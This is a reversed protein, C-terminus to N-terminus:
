RNQNVRWLPRAADQLQRYRDYGDEYVRAVVPDPEVVAEAHTWVRRDHAVGMADLAALVAGRAGVQPSRAVHLPRGLVSAFIELWSRSRAGGGCVVLRGSLGAADFCDRAAYALGECTARVLDARTTTLQIGGYQGRADPDVFPAREGSPALYPLVEVGGAGPRSSRLVPDLESHAIGLLELVWDLSASGAMAPMARLRLGVQPTALNMGAPEGSTDISGVVVQCALTTGVTMLGDGLEVVGAGIACAPFDFPGAVVPTHEPLGLEDAGIRSVGATPLPMAVPALLDARSSLGTAALAEASYGDAGANGFPLSADSRDTTRVGTLRQFVVDKCYAATVSRDLSEPEHADLWSMVAAISGPFLANGNLRYVSEVVGEARWRDLLGSARGDMWSIAPRVPRADADVLWCGDGQGTVAVVSPVDGGAERRVTAVVQAVSAVVEDTDQEVHGPAPHHLHTPHTAVAVVGGFEDFLAAKTVSTGVDIGLTTAGYSSRRDFGPM